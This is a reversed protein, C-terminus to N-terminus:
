DSSVVLESLASIVQDKEQEEKHVKENEQKLEVNKQRGKENGQVLKSINGTRKEVSQALEANKKDIGKELTAREADEMDLVKERASVIAGVGSVCAEWATEYDPFSIECDQTQMAETIENGPVHERIIDLNEIIEQEAGENLDNLAIQEGGYVISKGALADRVTGGSQEIIHKLERLASSNTANSDSNCVIANIEAQREECTHYFLAQVRPTYSSNPEWEFDHSTDSANAGAALMLSGAALAACKAGLEKKAM